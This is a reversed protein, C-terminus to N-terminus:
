DAQLVLLKDWARERHGDDWGIIYVGGISRNKQTEETPEAPEGPRSLDEPKLKNGQAM